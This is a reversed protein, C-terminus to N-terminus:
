PRRGVVGGRRAGRLPLHAGTARYTGAAGDCRRGYALCGPALWSPGGACGPSRAWFSWTPQWCQSWTRGPLRCTWPRHPAGPPVAFLPVTPLALVAGVLGCGAGALVALVVIPLQEGVSARTLGRRPVGSMGLCALDRSRRRFTSALLLVLVLAAIVLGALAVLVGLQLSWAPVSADYSRRVDSVRRVESIEVGSRQLAARVRALRVPNESDFWVQIRASKAVRSGWHQLLDLSVLAAPGDVGPARPLRGVSVLARDDGDLGNGNVIGAAPDTGPGAIVTPLVTPLWRSTMGLGSVGNNVLNLTLGDPSDASAEVRDLRDIGPRWDAVAGPLNTSGGAVKVQSITLHGKYAVGSFSGVTLGAVTCGSACPVAAGLTRARSVPINGLAVTSAAGRYDILDLQLQVGGQSIKLRDPTALLSISRGAVFLRPGTVLQLRSWPVRAADAGPSLAVRSFVAPDVALTTRFAHGAASIRVVPTEHGDAVTAVAKVVTSVDAGTVDAVMAAGVDGQAALQRNRSGVSVAYSSFVLLASAVTVVTVVRRTAPRRAMALMALAAAYSGRLMLQRGLWTATPVLLHALVLGVLLAMLAPAALALPGRLGGTVFALVATASGAVVVTDAVRPAWGPVRTPVSRLLSSIRDRTGSVAALWTVACLLLVTGAIAVWFGLGLEFPAADHLVTHRALAGLGLAGAVGVPVGLLVVPMLESLMLHRAGKSGSGRLRALAVEPRRQEVAAGLVLGLVFLALLGLQIMLLPVTVLAQRGGQDISASITPLGSQVDALVAEANIANGNEDVRFAVRNATETVLPGLRLARDVGVAPRDLNFTVSNLPDLWHPAQAGAFTGEATLWSDHAPRYPPNPDIFGSLGELLRGDWYAAPAQRYVGTVRLAVTPLKDTQDVRPQEVVAITSGIKLKFNKADAASVAVDRKATPCGGATWVVHACAGDRWLLEGVPSTSKLDARTVLLSTEDIPPLFWGRAARPLMGGMDSLSAPTYTAPDLGSTFRSLSRLQIAAASAPAADVTLRTLAQQMGRDYLPALVACATILASLALLMLAQLRRYRVALWMSLVGEPARM